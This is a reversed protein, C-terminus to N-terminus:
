IKLGFAEVKAGLLGKEISSISQNGSFVGSLLNQTTGAATPVAGKMLSAVDISPALNKMHQNLVNTFISSLSPLFSMAKGGPLSSAIQGLIASIGGGSTLSSLVSGLGGGGGTFSSLLSTLAGGGTLSSIDPISNVLGTASPVFSAVSSPISSAPNNAAKTVYDGSVQYGYFNPVALDAEEEAWVSVPTAVVFSFLTVFAVVGQFIKIKKKFM